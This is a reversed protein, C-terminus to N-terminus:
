GSTNAETPFLEADEWRYHPGGKMEVAAVWKGEKFEIKAVQVMAKYLSVRKGRRNLFRETITLLGAGEMDGLRRYCMAIPIGLSTSIEQACAAKTSTYALIKSCYSDTLLRIHFQKLEIKGWQAGGDQM